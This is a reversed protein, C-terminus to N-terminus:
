RGNADLLKFDPSLLKWSPGVKVMADLKITLLRDEQKAVVRANDTAETEISFSAFGFNMGPKTQAIPSMSLDMKEYKAGNTEEALLKLKKPVDAYVKDYFNGLDNGSFTALLEKKTIFLKKADDLRKEAVAEVFARGIAAPTKYVAEPEVKTEVKEQAFTASNILAVGLIICIAVALTHMQTKM